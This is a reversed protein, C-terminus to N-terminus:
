LIQTLDLSLLNFKPYIESLNRICKQYMQSANQFLESANRVCKPGMESFNQYFDRSILAAIHNTGLEKGKWLNVCCFFQPRILLNTFTKLTLNCHKNKVRRRRRQSSFSRTDQGTTSVAIRRKMQHLCSSSPWNRSVPHGWADVLSKKFTRYDTQRQTVARILLTPMRQRCRTRLGRTVQVDKPIRPFHCIQLQLHQSLGCQNQPQSAVQKLIAIRQQQDRLNDIQSRM